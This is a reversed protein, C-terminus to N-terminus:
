RPKVVVRLPKKFGTFRSVSVTSSRLDIVCCPATWVEVRRRPDPSRLELDAYLLRPSSASSLSCGHIAHPPPPNWPSASSCPSFSSGSPFPTPRSLGPLPMSLGHSGCPPVRLPPRSSSALLFIVPHPGTVMSGSSSTWPSSSCWPFTSTPRRARPLASCWSHHHFAPLPSASTPWPLAGAPSASIEVMSPFVPWWRPWPLSPLPRVSTTRRPSSLSGARPFCLLPRAPPCTAHPLFQLPCQSEGYLSSCPPPTTAAGQEKPLLAGGLSTSGLPLPPAM